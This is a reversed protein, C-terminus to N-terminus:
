LLGHITEVHALDYMAVVFYFIINEFILFFNVELVMRRQVGQMLPGLM